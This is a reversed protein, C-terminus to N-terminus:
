RVINKNVLEYIRYTSDVPNAIEKKIIGFEKSIYYYDLDPIPCCSNYYTYIKTKAVNYFWENQIQISDFFAIRSYDSVTSDTNEDFGFISKSEWPPNFLTKFDSNILLYKNTEHTNGGLKMEYNEYDRFSPGQGPHTPSVTFTLVSFTTSQIFISDRSNDSLDRYVWWTGPQFLYNSVLSENVPFLHHRNNENDNIEAEKSCSYIMLVLAFYPFMKLM